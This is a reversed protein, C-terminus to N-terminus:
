TRKGLFRLVLWLAAASLLLCLWIPVGHASPLIGLLIAVAGVCLAYPLQTRVHEILNCDSSMASLITTDSIPSCHDGWVAGAMIGSVSAYLIFYHDPAAQGSTQLLGWVLPIVLPIMIGMTSFSSGT